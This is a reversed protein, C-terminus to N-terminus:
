HDKLLNKIFEIEDNQYIRKRKEYKFFNKYPKLRRSLTAVSIGFYKALEKRTQSRKETM